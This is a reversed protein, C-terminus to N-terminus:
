SEDEPFDQDPNGQDWKDEDESEDWEEDEDKSRLYRYVGYAVALLGLLIFSLLTQMGTDPLMWGAAQQLRIAGFEDTDSVQGEDATASVTATGKYSFFQDKPETIEVDFACEHVGGAQLQLDAPLGKTELPLAVVPGDATKEVGLVLADASLSSLKKTSSSLSLGGSPVLDILAPPTQEGARRRAPSSSPTRAM